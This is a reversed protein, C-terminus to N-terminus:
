PILKEAYLERLHEANKETIAYDAIILDDLRADLTYIYKGTADQGTMINTEPFIREMDVTTITDAYVPEFNCYGRITKESLDFVFIFHTWGEAYERPLPYKVYYAKEGDGINILIAEPQHAIVFGANTGSSWDKNSLIVPDGTIQGPRIWFAFTIDQAKWVIGTDRFSNRFLMSKGCIGEETGNEFGDYFLMSSGSVDQKLRMEVPSEDSFTHLFPSPLHIMISEKRDEGGTDKWIGAPVRGTYYSPTDLGLAHLVIPAVDRTEMERIEGHPIVRKGRAAFFSRIEEESDGGHNKERGGHDATVIFLTNEAAGCETLTDYIVGITKDAQRIAECFEDSGWGSSHGADDAEDIQFFILKANPHNRIYAAIQEPAKDATLAEGEEDPFLSIGERLDIIGTNIAKWGVFSAMEADPENEHLYWFISHLGPTSFRRHEAYLNTLGHDNPEVGYFMSGWNQASSTPVAAHMEYTVAGNEFIRDFNPTDAKQFWSGAGDVGIIVVRDYVMAEAEAREAACASLYGGSCLILLLICALRVTEKMRNM